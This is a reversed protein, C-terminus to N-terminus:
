ESISLPLATGTSARLAKAKVSKTVGFVFSEGLIGADFERIVNTGDITSIQLVNRGSEREPKALALLTLRVGDGSIHIMPAGEAERLETSLWFTYQGPQLLTNGWYTPAPLEFSGKLVTEARAPIATSGLVLAILALGITLPKRTTM